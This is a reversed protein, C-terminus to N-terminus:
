PSYKRDDKQRFINKLTITHFVHKRMGYSVVREGEGVVLQFQGCGERLRDIPTTKDNGCTTDRLRKPTPSLEDLLHLTRFCLM